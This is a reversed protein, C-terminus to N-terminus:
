NQQFNDLEVFYDIVFDNFGQWPGTSILFEHTSKGSFDPLTRKSMPDM